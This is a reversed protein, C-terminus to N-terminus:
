EGASQGAAEPIREQGDAEGALTPPPETMGLDDEFLLGGDVRSRLDRLLWVLLGVIIPVVIWNGLFVNLSFAGPYRMAEASWLTSGLLASTAILATRPAKPLVWALPLAWVVYWPLLVPGLLMLLM